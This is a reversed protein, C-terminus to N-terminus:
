PTRVSLEGSRVARVVVGRLRVGTGLCELQLQGASAFRHATTMVLPVEAGPDSTADLTISNTFGVIELEPKAMLRCETDRESNTINDFLGTVDIVWDGAPLAVAPGVPAGASPLDFQGLFAVVAQSPGAEGRAGQPGRPGAAGQPGTAGTEGRPGAPGTQGQPGAPLSGIRLDRQTLSRDKVDRGTLSGDKVGAGTITAAAYASGGLAVILAVLGIAHASFRRM